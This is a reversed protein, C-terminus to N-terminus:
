PRYPRYYPSAPVELEATGATPGAGYPSLTPALRGAGQASRQGRYWGPIDDNAHTLDTSSSPSHKMGYLRDLEQDERQHRRRRWVYIICGVIIGIVAVGGAIGLAVKTTAALGTDATPEEQKKEADGGNLGNNVGPDVGTGSPRPIAGDTELTPLGSSADTDITQTGSTIAPENADTRTAGPGATTRSATAPRDSSQWNIQFMPAFLSFATVSAKADPVTMFAFDGSKSGDCTVTPITTSTAVLTCTQGNINACGYGSSFTLLARSFTACLPNVKPLMRSRDGRGLTPVAGALKLCWGYRRDGLMSDCIRSPLASGPLLLGLRQATCVKGFRRPFHTALVVYRRRRERKLMSARSECRESGIGWATPHWSPRWGCSGSRGHLSTATRINDDVPRPQDASPKDSGHNGHHQPRTTIDPIGLSSDKNGRVFLAAGRRPPRM